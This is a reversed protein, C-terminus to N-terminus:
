AGGRRRYMGGGARASCASFMNDCQQPTISRLALHIRFYPHVQLFSSSHLSAVLFFLGPRWRCRRGVQEREMQDGHRALWRKATNFVMEVQVRRWTVVRTLGPCWRLPCSGGRRAGAAFGVPNLHASYAPFNVVIAGTAQISRVFEPAHHTVFNDGLVVSNPLPFPNLEPM